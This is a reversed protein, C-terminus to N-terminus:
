PGDVEYGDARLLAPVGDAGALHAAGVTIFFNKNESLMTEIQKAWNENRDSLLMKKLEPHGAFNADMLSGVKTVDGDSWAQILPPITEWRQDVNKLGSEFKDLPLSDDVLLSFQQDITELYRVPRNHANAWSMLVYDAGADPYYKQNMMEALSLQLSVLWPQEHDTVAPSLHTAALAADYAALSDPSLLTRLSQGEPLAGKANMLSNLTEQSAADTPVEFVFVDARAVARMIDPTLWNMNAPLIHLSGFLTVTGGGAKIHWVVPHAYIVDDARAPAAALLGLAILILALNRM